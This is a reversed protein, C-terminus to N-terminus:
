RRSFTNSDVKDYSRGDDGTYHKEGLIGSSEKVHTGDDLIYEKPKKKNNFINGSLVSIFTLILWLGIVIYVVMAAAFGVVAMIGIAFTVLASRYLAIKPTDAAFISEAINLIALLCVFYIGKSILLQSSNGHIVGLAVITALIAGTLGAMAICITAFWKNSNINDGWLKTEMNHFWMLIKKM